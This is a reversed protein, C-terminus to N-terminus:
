LKLNKNCYPETKLALQLEEPKIEQASSYIKPKEIDVYRLLEYKDLLLYTRVVAIYLIYIDNVDIYRALLHLKERM